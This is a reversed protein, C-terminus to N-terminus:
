SQKVQSRNNIIKNGLEITNQSSFNVWERIYNMSFEDFGRMITVFDLSPRYRIVSKFLSSQFFLSYSIFFLIQFYVVLNEVHEGENWMRMAVKGDMKRAM